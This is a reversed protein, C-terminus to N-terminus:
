PGSPWLRSRGRSITTVSCRLCACAEALARGGGERLRNRGLDLSALTTHLRLTEAELARGGGEGLGNDCLDLSALTTNLRLAEALAATGRGAGARKWAAATSDCYLQVTNLSNLKDLLRPRRPVGRRAQMVAAEEVATRMAKSTSLLAIFSSSAPTLRAETSGTMYPHASYWLKQVVTSISDIRQWLGVRRPFVPCMTRTHPPCYTMARASAFHGPCPGLASWSHALHPHKGDRTM